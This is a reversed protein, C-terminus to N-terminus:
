DFCSDLRQLASAWGEDSPAEPLVWGQPVLTGDPHDVPVLFMDWERRIQILSPLSHEAQTYFAKFPQLPHDPPLEVGFLRTEMEKKKQLQREREKRQRKEFDRKREEEQEGELMVRLTNEEAGYVATRKRILSRLREVQEDFVQDAEREPFIGKRSAAEKRLKRLKELSKLIGLMRKVDAQKKRVESLVADAAIKLEHEKKREEVEHIRKMRWKDIAAEKEAIRDDEIHKEELQLLKRKRRRARKKAIHSLKSNVEDICAPDNLIKLKDQLDTKVSLAMEYAETWGFENELNHKLTECATSLQSVLHVASYLSHRLHSLSRYSQTQKSVQNSSIRGKNKFFHQIWQMDQTKQIVEEDPTIAMIKGPVGLFGKKDQPIFSPAGLLPQNCNQSFHANTNHSRFSSSPFDTTQFDYDSQKPCSIFYSSHPDFASQAHYAGMSRQTDTWANLQTSESSSMHGQGGHHLARQVQNLPHLQGPPPCNLPPPPCNLPPPPVSPDFSYGIPMRPLVHGTSKPMGHPMHPPPMHPPFGYNTDGCYGSPATPTPIMTWQQGIPNQQQNQHADQRDWYTASGESTMLMSSQFTSQSTDWQPQTPQPFGHYSAGGSFNSDGTERQSQRERPTFNGEYIDEM